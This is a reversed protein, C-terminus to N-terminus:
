LGRPPLDLQEGKGNIADVPPDENVMTEEKAKGKDKNKLAERLERMIRRTERELDDYIIFNGSPNAM